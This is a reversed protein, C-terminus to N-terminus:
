LGSLRKRPMSGPRGDRLPCFMFQVDDGPKFTDGTIGRTLLSPQASGEFGGSRKRATRM